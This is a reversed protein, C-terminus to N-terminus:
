TKAQDAVAERGDEAGNETRGTGYINRKSLV